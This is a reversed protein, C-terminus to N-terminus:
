SHQFKTVVLHVAPDAVVEHEVGAELTIFTGTRLEQSDELESGARFVGSGSMCLVTIPVDAKHRALVASNQLRLDVIRRFPGKFLENVQMDKALDTEHLVDFEKILHISKM